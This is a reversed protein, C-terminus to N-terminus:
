GSLMCADLGGRESQAIRTRLAQLRTSQNRSLHQDARSFLIRVRVGRDRAAKLKSVLSEVYCTYCGLRTVAGASDIARGWEELTASASLFRM